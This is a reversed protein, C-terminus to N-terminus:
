IHILNGAWLMANFYLDPVAEEPVQLKAALESFLEWDGKEYALILGLVDGLPNAEGLLAAKVDGSIPLEALVDLLPRDLLCDILSFIGMLFLDTSRAGMGTRTALMEGMKGRAISLVAIEQPKNGGAERIALSSVWEVVEKKGLLVLAQKISHITAKFGFAASNVFKLLKYSFGVDHQIITELSNYDIEAGSLESLIRFYQSRTTALQSGAVPQPETFFYGQIYSAGLNAAEDFDKRTHVNQAWIECNAAGAEKAAAQRQDAAVAHFDVKMINVWERVYHFAPGFLAADAIISYGLERLIRCTATMDGGSQLEGSIDVVILQRPLQRSIEGDILAAAYPVFVKKNGTLREPGIEGFAAALDDCLSGDCRFLLQYAVVGMHRTFIPQRALFAKM